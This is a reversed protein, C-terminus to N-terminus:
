RDRWNVRFDDVHIKKKDVKEKNLIVLTFYKKEWDNFVPVFDIDFIVSRSETHNKNHEDSLRKGIKQIDINCYKKISERHKVLSQNEHFKPKTLEFKRGNHRECIDGYNIGKSRNKTFDNLFNFFEEQIQKCNAGIINERDMKFDVDYQENMKNFEDIYNDLNM